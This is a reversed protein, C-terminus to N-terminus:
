RQEEIFKKIKLFMVKVDTENLCLEEVPCYGTGTRNMIREVLIGYVVEVGNNRLLCLASNSMVDAYVSHVKGYVMLAAAGKGVIKDAVFAGDLVEPATSALCLLDSVGRGTYTHTEGNDIVCSYCTNTHLLDALKALRNNM